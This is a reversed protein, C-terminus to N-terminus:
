GSRCVLGGDAGMAVSLCSEEGQGRGGGGVM